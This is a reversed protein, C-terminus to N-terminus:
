KSITSLYITLIQGFLIFYIIGAMMLVACVLPDLHTSFTLCCYYILIFKYVSRHIYSCHFCLM